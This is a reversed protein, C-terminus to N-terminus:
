HNAKLQQKGNDNQLCFSSSEISAQVISMRAYLYQCKVELCGEDQGVELISDPPAALWPISPDVWLGCKHM